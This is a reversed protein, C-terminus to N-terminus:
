IRQSEFFSQPVPSSTRPQRDRPSGFGPDRIHRPQFCTGAFVEDLSVVVVPEWGVGWALRPVLARGRSTDADGRKDGAWM